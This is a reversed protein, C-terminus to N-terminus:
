KVKFITMCSGYTDVEVNSSIYIWIKDNTQLEIAASTSIGHYKDFNSVYTFKGTSIFSSIDTIGVQNKVDPFKVTQGSYTIDSNACATMAVSILYNIYKM